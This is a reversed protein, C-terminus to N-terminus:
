AAAQGAYDTVHVDEVFVLPGAVVEKLAPPFAQMWELTDGSAGILGAAQVRHVVETSLRRHGFTDASDGVIVALREAAVQGTTM